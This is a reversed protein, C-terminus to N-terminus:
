YIQAFLNTQIHCSNVRNAYTILENIDHAKRGEYRAAFSWAMSDASYLCRQVIESQLATLKVGFGHLRLDPRHEKISMLVAKIAGPRSNRKCVSGVGVWAGQALLDGYMRLHEVYDSPAYGQLVPMIYVRKVLKKLAKYRYITMRQHQPITMGTKELVFKECMYDQSVAALLNESAWRDVEIAYNLLSKPPYGGHKIVTTFAGSDMIWKPALVPSRRKWLRNVSIMCQQVKSANAVEHLGPYFLVTM